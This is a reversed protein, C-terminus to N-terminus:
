KKLLISILLFIGIIILIIIGILIYLIYENLTKIHLPIKYLDVVFDLIKYKCINNVVTFLKEPQNINKDICDKVLMRFDRRNIVTKYNTPIMTMNNLTEITGGNINNLNLLLDSIKEIPNM